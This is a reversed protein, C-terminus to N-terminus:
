ARGGATAVSSGPVSGESLRSIVTQPRDMGASFVCAAMSPTTHAVVWEVSEGSLCLGLAGAFREVGREAPGSLDLREGFVRRCCEELSEEDGVSSESRDDGGGGDSESGADRRRESGLERFADGLRSALMGETIAEGNGTM